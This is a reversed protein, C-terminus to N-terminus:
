ARDASEYRVGGPHRRLVASEHRLILLEADRARDSLFM